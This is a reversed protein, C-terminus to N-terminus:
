CVFRLKCPVQYMKTRIPVELCRIYGSTGLYCGEQPIEVDLYRLFVKKVKNFYTQFAEIVKFVENRFTNSRCRLIYILSFQVELCWTALNKNYKKDMIQWIKQRVLKQNSKIHVGCSIKFSLRNKQSSTRDGATTHNIQFNKYFVMFKRWRIRFRSLFDFEFAVWWRCTSKVFRRNKAVVVKDGVGRWPEQDPLKLFSM